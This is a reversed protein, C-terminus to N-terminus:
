CFPLTRAANSWMFTVRIRWEPQTADAQANRCGHYITDHFRSCGRKGKRRRQEECRWRQGIMALGAFADSAADRYLGAIASQMKAIVRATMARNAVARVTMIALIAIIAIALIEPLHFAASNAGTAARNSIFRMIVAEVVDVKIITTVSFLDARAPEAHGEILDLELGTAALNLTWHGTNDSATILNALDIADRLPSLASIIAPM